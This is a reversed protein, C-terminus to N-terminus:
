ITARLPPRCKNEDLNFDGRDHILSTTSFVTNFSEEAQDGWKVCELSTLPDM